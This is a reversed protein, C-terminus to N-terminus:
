CLLRTLCLHPRCSGGLADALWARQVGSCEKYNDDYDDEHNNGPQSHLHAIPTRCLTSCAQLDEDGEYSAGLYGYQPINADHITSRSILMIM